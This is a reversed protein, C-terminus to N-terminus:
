SNLINKNTQINIAARGKPCRSEDEQEEIDATLGQDACKKSKRFIHLSRAQNTRTYVQHIVSRQM